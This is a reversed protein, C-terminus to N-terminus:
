RNISSNIAVVTIEFTLTKGALRHNYDITINTANMSARATGFMTQIEPELIKSALLTANKASIETVVSSWPQGPFTINDGVAIDHRVTLTTENAAVVTEDWLGQFEFRDGEKLDYAVKVTTNSIEDVTIYIESGPILLREGVEHGEGFSMDFEQLSMELTKNFTEELPIEAVKPFVTAMEPDWEGYADAPAIVVTKTEDVKMGIVIDNFGKIMQGAGVEFTLPEYTRVPSYIGEREAVEEYSTDFVTGDDLRGIYNVSVTDGNSVKVEDGICGSM